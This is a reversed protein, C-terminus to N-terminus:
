LLRSHTGTFCTPSGTPTASVTVTLVHVHMDNTSTHQTYAMNTHDYVHPNYLYFTSAFVKTRDIKQTNYMLRRALLESEELCNDYM